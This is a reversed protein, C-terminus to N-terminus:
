PALSNLYNEIETDTLESSANVNLKDGDVESYEQWDELQARILIDRPYAIYLNVHYEYGSKFGGLQNVSVEVEQPPVTNINKDPIQLRVRLKYSDAPILMMCDGVKHKGTADEIRSDGAELMVTENSGSHSLRLGNNDYLPIDTGPGDVLEDHENLVQIYRGRVEPEDGMGTRAVVLQVTDPQNIASIEYIKLKKLDHEADGNDIPTVHFILKAMSHKMTIPVVGERSAAKENKMWRASYAYNEPADSYAHGWLVDRTGTNTIQQCLYEITNAGVTETFSRTQTWKPYVAFFEYRYAQSIPYTKSASLELRSTEKDYTASMATFLNHDSNVGNLWSIQAKAEADSCDIVDRALAYISFDNKLNELDDLSFGKTQAISSVGLQIPMAQEVVVGGSPILDTTSSVDNENGCAAMMLAALSLLTIHKYRM